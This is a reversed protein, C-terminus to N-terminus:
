AHELLSLNRHLNSLNNRIECNVERLLDLLNESNTVNQMKSGQTFTQESNRAMEALCVFLCFNMFCWAYIVLINGSSRHTPEMVM